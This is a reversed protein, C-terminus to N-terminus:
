HLEKADICVMKQTCKRNTQKNTENNVMNARDENLNIICGKSRIGQKQM